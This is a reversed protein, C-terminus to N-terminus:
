VRGVPMLYLPEEGPDLGLLDGVKRDDFAGITVTGLDLSTAQLYVNQACHGAEMHVYRIGREGYKGTTRNAFATIVLVAPADEVAGQGLAAASLERRLDGGRISSLTHTSPHYRYIGPVLDTVEGAVVLIELPYLAGASPATRLGGAGTIGQGAWLLQGIEELTLSEERYSRVSRRQLLAAELSTESERRPQPLAIESEPAAGGTSHSGQGIWVMVGVVGTAIILLGAALFLRREMGVGGGEVEKVKEGQWRIGEGRGGWV